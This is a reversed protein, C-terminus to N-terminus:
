RFLEAIHVALMWLCFILGLTGLFIPSWIGSRVKRLTAIGFGIGLTICAMLPLWYSADTVKTGPSYLAPLIIATVGLPLTVFGEWAIPRKEGRRFTAPNDPDFTRGCEPCVPDALGRLNYDCGLCHPDPSSETM